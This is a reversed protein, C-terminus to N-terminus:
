LNMPVSVCAAADTSSLDQANVFNSNATLRRRYDAEGACRRRILRAELMPWDAGNAVVPRGGTDEWNENGTSRGSILRM